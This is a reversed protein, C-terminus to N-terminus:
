KAGRTKFALPGICTGYGRSELELQHPNELLIVTLILLLLSFNNHFILYFSGSIIFINWILCYLYKM